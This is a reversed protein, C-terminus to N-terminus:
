WVSQEDLAIPSEHVTHAGSMGAIPTWHLIFFPCAHVDREAPFHPASDASSPESASTSSWRIRPPRPKRPPQRAKPRARRTMPKDTIKELKADPDDAAKVIKEDEKAIVKAAHDEAREARKEDREAKHEEHKEEMRDKFEEFHEKIDAM